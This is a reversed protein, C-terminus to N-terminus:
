FQFYNFNVKLILSLSIIWWKRSWQKALCDNSLFVYCSLHSKLLKVLLQTGQQFNLICQHINVHISDESQSCFAWSSFRIQFFFACLILIRSYHCYIFLYIFTRIQDSAKRETSGWWIVAPISTYIKKKRHNWFLSYNKESSVNHLLKLKNKAVCDCKLCHCKKEM